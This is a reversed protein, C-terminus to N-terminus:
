PPIKQVPLAADDRAQVPLADRQGRLYILERDVGDTARQARRRDSTGTPRRGAVGSPREPVMPRRRFWLILASIGGEMRGKWVHMPVKGMNLPKPGNRPALRSESSSLLDSHRLRRKNEYDAAVAALDDNARVHQQTAHKARQIPQGPDMAFHAM